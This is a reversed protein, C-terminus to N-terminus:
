GTQVLGEAFGEDVIGVDARVFLMQGVVRQADAQSVVNDVRCIKDTKMRIGQAIEVLAVLLGGEVFQRSPAVPQTGVLLLKPAIGCAVATARELSHLMLVLAGSLFIFGDLSHISEAM